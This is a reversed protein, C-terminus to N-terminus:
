KVSQRNKLNDVKPVGLLFNNQRKANTLFRKDVGLRFLKKIYNKIERKKSGRRVCLFDCTSQETDFYPKHLENTFFQKPFNPKSM